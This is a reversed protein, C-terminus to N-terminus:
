GNEKNIRETKNYLYLRPRLCSERGEWRSTDDSVAAWSRIGINSAAPNVETCSRIRVATSVIYTVVHIIKSPVASFEVAAAPHRNKEGEWYSMAGISEM